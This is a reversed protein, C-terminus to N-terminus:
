RAILPALTEGLLAVRGEIHGSGPVNVTVGDIGTDGSRRTGSLWRTRAAPSAGARRAALRRAAPSLRTREAVAQEHTPAICASTQYTM